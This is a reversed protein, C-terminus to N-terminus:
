QAAQREIHMDRALPLVVTFTSGQGPTSSVKIEGGMDRVLGYSISLGLGLGKGAEKTTVFPEFLTSMVTQDIGTGVDTLVIAATTPSCEIAIRLVPKDVAEMADAANSVLNILVQEIHIPNGTVLVPGSPLDCSITLRRSDVLHACLELANHLIGVLDSTISIETERRAFTKLHGTLATLRNLVGDMSTLVEMLEPFKNRALLKASSNQTRLAAIPQSVEHAVGALAQGLSAMKAAQVLGQQADIRAREAQRREIIEDNLRENAEQLESTRLRVRLELQDHDDLRARILRQRQFFLAAAALTAGTAILVVLATTMAAALIPGLPTFSLLQWGHTPIRLRDVLFEGSVSSDGSELVAMEAGRWPEISRVIGQREITVGAYRQDNNLADAESQSIDGLPRYRWDPRTSLIAVENTDVIGILEGSRWWVAEIEGLNIKAVAVGLPGDPGDIRNALFYGPVGTTMGVAYYRAAGDLMSETFYPRQVYSHGVLSSHSWWNSAAVSTGNTDVVFLEDSVATSNLNSLFGNADNRLQDDGPNTLLSRVEPSQTITAPLYHYREINAELTRDFIQLRRMSLEEATDLANRLALEYAFVGSFLVILAGCTVMVARMYGSLTIGGRRGLWTDLAAIRL